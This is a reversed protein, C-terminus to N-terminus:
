INTIYIISILYSVQKLAIKRKQSSYVTPVTPQDVLTASPTIDVLFNCLHNHNAFIFNM